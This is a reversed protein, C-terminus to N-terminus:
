RWGKSTCAPKGERYRTRDPCRKASVTYLCAPFSHAGVTATM